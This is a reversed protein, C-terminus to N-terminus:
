VAEPYQEIRHDYFYKEPDIGSIEFYITDPCIDMDQGWSIAHSETDIKIKEFNEYNEWSKFVGKSVLHALSVIGATGDSYKVWIKYDKLAKVAIPKFM